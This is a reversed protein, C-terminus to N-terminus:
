WNKLLSSILARLSGCRLIVLAAANHKIFWELRRTPVFDYKTQDSEHCSIQINYGVNKDRNQKVVFFFGNPEDSAQSKQEEGIENGQNEAKKDHVPCLTRVLLAERTEAAYEAERGGDGSGVIQKFELYQVFPRRSRM